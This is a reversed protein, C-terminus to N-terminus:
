FHLGVAVIPGQQLVNWEFADSGSGAAYDQDLLRYGFGVKVASSLQWNVRALLQWTVDCGIGFGGIDGRLQLELARSLPLFAQAGVLPDLWEEKVTETRTTQPGYWSVDTKLGAYRVGALLEFRDSLRYVADLEVLLEKAGVHASVAGRSGTGDQGLAMYVLDAQVGWTRGVGRYDALVAFDLNEFIKSAPVDIETELRGMGVTGAMSAGMLYVEASSRFPEDGALAPAAVGAALALAACAIVRSPTRM